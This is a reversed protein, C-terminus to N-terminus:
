HVASVTTSARELLSALVKRADFYEEAIERAARCHADYEGAVRAIAAVAEAPSRFAFLGRGTELWRSFGTEETVVPRGSALYEASRDSFWGSGALVYGQKAVSFEAKSRAIFERYTWPDRSPAMPDSVIWGSGALRERPASGGGMAVEMRENVRAPLDVYPPFSLSKMGYTRGEFHLAPYSEWQMMTSFNGDPRGRTIPWADLVIPQRTPQWPFGDDPISCGTIGINEGFTLFANHRRASQLALPDTLHRVQTFAPDTDILVRLPINMMWERLPNVGSVNLCIDATRCLERAVRGAPGHWAQTHADYYAWREPLGARAFVNNAFALGVTPDTTIEHTTPDYCSEFDDSDELFYVDHGLQELGLVYQLHHLAHGALAGRVIYGLVLVRLASLM